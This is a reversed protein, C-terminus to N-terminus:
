KPESKSMEDFEKQWEQKEAVPTVNFKGHKGLGSVFKKAGKISEKSLVHLGEMGENVLSQELSKSAFTAHIASARDARLCNQPHATLEKALHMARGYAAGTKSLYNVLGLTHAEEAEVIRGTLILDMARSLGILEPLRVSGGDILPVGFRRNLFGLKAEVDAVRLDAMLALELGGAVCWGEIVAIVPKTFEMRTPGMPGRDMMQSAVTNALESEDIEALEELDYGACFNGGIGHFVACYMNEDAEFANFAELLQQAMEENVCNRKKSRNMSITMIHLHEIRETLVLPGTPKEELVSQNIEGVTSEAPTKENSSTYKQCTTSFRRELNIPAGIRNVVKTNNSTSCDGDEKSVIPLLKNKTSSFLYRKDFNLTRIQKLMTFNEDFISLV